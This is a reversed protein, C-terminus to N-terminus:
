EFDGKACKALAEKAYIQARQPRTYKELAERMTKICVILSCRECFSGEFYFCEHASSEIEEIWKWDSM